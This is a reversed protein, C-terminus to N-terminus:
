GMHLKTDVRWCDGARLRIRAKNSLSASIPATTYNSVWSRQRDRKAPTDDYLKNGKKDQVDNNMGGM